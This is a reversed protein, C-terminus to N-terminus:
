HYDILDVDSVNGDEFRFVIRWNGRITVAWFGALDGKLPHLRFGPIDMDAPKSSRKLQALIRAIKDAHEANVGSRDDDEYLRRLGRHRFRIIM